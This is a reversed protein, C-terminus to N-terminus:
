MRGALGLSAVDNRWCGPGASVSFRFPGQDMPEHIFGSASVISLLLRKEKDGNHLFLMRMKRLLVLLRLRLPMYRMYTSPKLIEEDM